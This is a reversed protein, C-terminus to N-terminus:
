IDVKMMDDFPELPNPHWNHLDSNYGYLEKRSDLVIVPADGFIRQQILNMGTVRKSPEYELQGREIAASVDRNCYRPDNQGDPPFRDCAYFNSLDTQPNIGWAFVVADFKGGFISGGAAAPAFLLSSLYHRVQLDAGIQKWGTRILEIRQDSDQSGVSTAFNLSLRQGNKSRIGDAGRKWGAADLMSNARGIDTPLLPIDKYFPSAKPVVSESLDYIGFQIKDNVLKRDLALRLAKRVLPDSVLPRQVNFDLHDVFFSPTSLFTIGPIAKVANAYHPSIPTWLDLEHTHLQEAVTNRDQIIKYVVRQLKPPGRFYLPNAALEVSEGRNWRVYKFPGIGVPLANYPDTNVDKGALLHKPLIAPGTNGTSFYIYAFPAYPRKLHFVVTFEDPEDVREIQDWGERSIINTHPDLVVHTTFVVDDASFPAGDSWKVGHRLHYTIAKGDASIGSNAKSPIATCLEPVTAASKADTRILYAQTMTSLYLLTAQDDTMPNLGVLDESATFRLEHPHTYPHRGEGVNSTGIRTCGSAVLLAALLVLIRRM